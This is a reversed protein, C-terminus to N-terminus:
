FRSILQGYLVTPRDASVQGHTPFGVDVRGTISNSYSFRVGAGAGSLTRSVVENVLPSDIRGSGFDFFGVGQLHFQDVDFINQRLELSSSFADDALFESQVFGRVSDAGGLAFQEPTTLARNTGQADLRVFLFLPKGLQTLHAIQTTLKTFGDGANAGPRSSLQDGNATGQFATGLGQTVSANFILRGKDTVWNGDYTLQVERLRDHSVVQNGFIFNDVNKINLATSFNTSAKTTRDLAHQWAFGYIQAAGSIDLVAFQGDVKTKADLYNVNFRDGFHGLPMTYSAQSWVPSTGPFSDTVHLYLEDGDMSLNGGWLSLGARNRGVLDVGYNNYDFGYHFPAEDKVKLVVDTTGPKKGIDFVSRVNLDTFSNMVLLAREVDEKNVIPNEMAASFFRMIFDDGYHQNGEIRIKGFRGESVAILVHGGKVVQPPIGARALIYGRKRYADRIALCLKRLQALSVERHQYPGAIRVLEEIPLETIGSFRLTTVTFKIRLEAENEKEDPGAGREIDEAGSKTARRDEPRTIEPRQQGGRLASDTAGTVDTRAATPLSPVQALAPMATAM